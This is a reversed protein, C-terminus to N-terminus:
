LFRTSHRRHWNRRRGKKKHRRKRDKKKNKSKTGKARKSEKECVFGIHTKVNHRRGTMYFNNACPWFMWQNSESTDILACSNTEIENVWGMWKSVWMHFTLPEDNSRWRWQGAGNSAGIWYAFDFEPGM